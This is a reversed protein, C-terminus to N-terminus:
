KGAFWFKVGLGFLRKRGGRSRGRGHRRSGRVSGLPLDAGCQVNREPLVCVRAHRSQMGNPRGNRRESVRCRASRVGRDCGWVVRTDLPPPLLWTVCGDLAETSLSAALGRSTVRRRRKKYVRSGARTGRPPWGEPRLVSSLPAPTLAKAWPYFCGVVVGRSTGRDPRTVSPPEVPERELLLRENDLFLTMSDVLLTRSDVFPMMSEVFLPKSELLLRM